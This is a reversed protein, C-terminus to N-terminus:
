ACRSRLRVRTLMDRRVALRRLTARRVLRGHSNSQAHPDRRQVHGAFSPALRNHFPKGPAPREASRVAGRPRRRWRHSNEEPCPSRKGSLKYPKFQMTLGPDEIVAAQKARAGTGGSLCVEQGVERQDGPEVDGVGILVTAPSAPRDRGAEVVDAEGVGSRGGRDELGGRQRQESPSAPMVARRRDIAPFRAVVPWQAVRVRDPDADRRLPSV